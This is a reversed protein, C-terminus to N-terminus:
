AAQPAPAAAARRLNRVDAVALVAATAVLVVAAAAWLTDAVGIAESIPGALAAGVPALALSGLWDYSSVRSLTEEPVHQQVATHWLVDFFELGAGALFAAAATALAPASLALLALPAAALLVATLGAALPRTPRLRFALLGGCAFGAAQCTVILGWAAPGGLSREAVFPGLVVFASTACANVFAFQAVVAWLWTRSRFENWGEALERLFNRETARADRPLALRALFVAGLGFSAADAALAWGAGVGAVLLGGVAAGAITTGNRALSLLANAEQLRAATVTQPVLGTAAPFFFASATGRVAALVILHWVAAHGTLLLAAIAAQAAGSVLDSAIMTLHRPLRDAWIGGVVLFVVQPLVAAALVLGLDSPSGTLEIVAFATAIPSLATGFLSITRALFLLRFNREALPGARARWRMGTVPPRM